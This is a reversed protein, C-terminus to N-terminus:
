KQFFLIINLFNLLTDLEKINKVIEDFDNYISKFPLKKNKDLEIKIDDKNTTIKIIKVDKVDLYISDGIIINKINTDQNNIYSNNLNDIKKNIDIDNIIKVSDNIFREITETKSQSINNLIKKSKRSYVLAKVYLKKNDIVCKNKYFLEKENKNPLNQMKLNFSWTFIIFNYLIILRYIFKM